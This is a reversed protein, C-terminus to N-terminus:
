SNFNSLDTNWFEFRYNRAFNPQPRHDGLRPLPVWGGLESSKHKYKKSYRYKYKYKYKYEKGIEVGISISWNINIYLMLSLRVTNTLSLSTTSSILASCSTSEQKKTHKGNIDKIVIMWFGFNSDFTYQHQIHHAAWRLESGSDRAGPPTSIM